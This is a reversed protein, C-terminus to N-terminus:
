HPPIDYILSHIAGTARGGEMERFLELDAKGYRGCDKKGRRSQKAEKAHSKVRAAVVVIVIGGDLVQANIM